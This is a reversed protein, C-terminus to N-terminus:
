PPIAGTHQVAPPLRDFIEAPWSSMSGTVDIAVILPNTSETSVIKKPDIIKENPGSKEQYTRPGAAKAREAPPLARLRRRLATNINQRVLGDAQTM